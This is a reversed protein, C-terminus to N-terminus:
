KLLKESGELCTSHQNRSYHYPKRLFFQMLTFTAKNSSKNCIWLSLWTWHPEHLNQCIQTSHWWLVVSPKPNSNVKFGMWNWGRDPFPCRGSDLNSWDWVIQGQVIGPNPCTIEWALYSPIYVSTTNQTSILHLWSFHPLTALDGNSKRSITLGSSISSNLTVYGWSMLSGKWVYNWLYPTSLICFDYWIISLIVFFFISCGGKCKSISM